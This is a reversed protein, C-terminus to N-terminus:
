KSQKLLRPTYKFTFFLKFMANLFISLAYAVSYSVHKWQFKGYPCIFATKPRLDPHISIHHYGARIDLSSFYQAGKLKAWIHDIKAMEILIITGKAKAQVMQVKPLQRNLEQYDFVLQKMEMLSSGAPVKCSVVMILADYPSLSWEILRAELLNTLEEKIFKHHKLLLSYTKSVVLISGSKTHLVMERIHTLGIDSSSKSMIDSLEELLTELQQQTEPSLEADLLTIRPKLYFDKCFLFASNELIPALKDTNKHCNKRSNHLSIEQLCNKLRERLTKLTKM